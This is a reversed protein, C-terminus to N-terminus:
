ACPPVGSLRVPFGHVRRPSDADCPPGDTYDLTAWSARVEVLIRSVTCADDRHMCVSWTGKEPEHSALWDAIERSSAPREDPWRRRFSAERERTAGVPDLTSSVRLFPGDLRTREVTRGDWRVSVVSAASRSGGPEVLLVEFARVDDLEDLAGGDLGRALLDRVVLGRSRPRQPLVRDPSESANLICVTCGESDVGLWTGGADPDGPALARRQGFAHLTPPTAHGRDRREDRNHGLLYGGDAIPVFVVTCMGTM